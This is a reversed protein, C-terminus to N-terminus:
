LIFFSSFNFACESYNKIAFIRLFCIFLTSLIQFIELIIFTIASEFLLDSESFRYVFCFCTVYYCTFGTIVAIAVSLLLNQFKINEFEQLIMKKKKKRKKLSNYFDIIKNSSNRTLQLLMDILIFLIFCLIIKIWAHTFYFKIFNKERLNYKDSIYKKTFLLTNILISFSFKFLLFIIRILKPQLRNYYYFTYIFNERLTIQNLFLEWFKRKDLRIASSYNLKNLRKDNNFLINKAIKIAYTEKDEKQEVVKSIYEDKEEMRIVSFGQQNSQENLENIKNIKKDDLEVSNIELDKLSYFLDSKIEENNNKEYFSEDTIHLKKINIENGNEIKNKKDIIINTKNELKNKEDIVNTKNELENNNEIIKESPKYKTTKNMNPINGNGFLFMYDNSDKIQIINGVKFNRLDKDNLNIKNEYNLLSNKFTAKKNHINIIMKNNKISNENNIINNNYNNKIPPNGVILAAILDKLFKIDCILYIIFCLIEGLLFIILIISVIYFSFNKKFENKCNTVDFTLISQSNVNNKIRKVNYYIETSLSAQFFCTCNVEFTDYDKGEETCKDDCFSVNQYFDKIRDKLIVDYDIIESINQCFNTFIIESENFVNFNFNRFKIATEFDVNKMIEMPHIMTVNFYQECEDVDYVPEGTIPNYISYKILHPQDDGRNIDLMLIIVDIDRSVPAGKQLYEYCRGFYLKTISYNRYNNLCEYNRYIMISYDNDESIIYKIHMNNLFEYLYALVMSNFVDDNLNELKINTYYINMVCENKDICENNSNAYTGNPCEDFCQYNYIYKYKSKFCDEICEYQNILNIKKHKYISDCENLCKYQKTNTDIISFECVCNLPNEISKIFSNACTLCNHNIENGGSSCTQCTYYCKELYANESYREGILYYPEISLKEYSICNAKDRTSNLYFPYYDNEYDCVECGFPSAVSYESMSINSCKICNNQCSYFKSNDFYFGPIIDTSLYCHKAQFLDESSIPYYGLDTACEECNPFTYNGPKLCKKCRPHCLKYVLYEKEIEESIKIKEYENYYGETKYMCNQFITQNWGVIESEITNRCSTCKNNSENGVELCSLCSKYCNIINLVCKQSYDELEEQLLIYEITFNSSDLYSDSGYLYLPDAETIKCGKTKCEPNILHVYNPYSYFKIFPGILFTFDLTTNQALPFDRSECIPIYYSQSYTYYKNDIETLYIFHLYNNSDLLFDFSLFNVGGEPVEFIITNGIQNLDKDIKVIEAKTQTGCGIMGFTNYSLLIINNPENEEYSSCIGIVRERNLVFLKELIIDSVCTIGYNTVYFCTIIYSVDNDVIEITQCNKCSYQRTGSLKYQNNIYALQYSQYNDNNNFLYHYIIINDNDNECLTMIVNKNKLVTLHYKDYDIESSYPPNNDDFLGAYFINLEKKIIFLNSDDVKAIAKLNDNIILQYTCAFDTTFTKYFSICYNDYLKTFILLPFVPSENLIDSNFIVTQQNIIQTYFDDSDSINKLAVITNDVGHYSYHYINNLKEPHLTNTDDYNLFHSNSKLFFFSLCVYFIFELNGKKM